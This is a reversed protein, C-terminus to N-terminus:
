TYIKIFRKTMKEDYVVNDQFMKIPISWIMQSEIEQYIIIEENNEYNKGLGLVKCPKKHRHHQYIDGPKPTLDNSILGLFQKITIEGERVIQFTSEIFYEKSLKTWDYKSIENLDLVLSNLVGECGIQPCRILGDFQPQPNGIYIVPIRFALAPLLTHLRSTIVLDALAIKALLEHALYIKKDNPLKSEIEQTLYEIEGFKLQNLAYKQFLDPYDKHTDVVLIKKTSTKNELKLYNEKKLSLTLCASFYINLNAGSNRLLNYTYLDKCGVKKDKFLNLDVNELSSLHLSIFLPDLYKPISKLSTFCGNFIIKIKTKREDIQVKRFTLDYVEFTNKNVLYDTKPLYQSAALTQINDGLSISDYFFAGFKIEM